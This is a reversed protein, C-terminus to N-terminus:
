SSLVVQAKPDNQNVCAIYPNPSGERSACKWAVGDVRVIVPEDGTPNQRTAAHFAKAVKLATSCSAGGTRLVALGGDWGPGCYEFREVGSRGARAPEQDTAGVAGAPGALVAALAAGSTVVIASRRIFGMRTEKM